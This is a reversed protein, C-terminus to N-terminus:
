MTKISTPLNYLAGKNTERPYVGIKRLARGIERVDFKNLQPHCDKFKSVTMEKFEQDSFELLIDRIELESKIPKEFKGNREALQKREDDNLRFGQPNGKAREDIQRYLQLANFKILASIDMKEPIHVTWFRRNGTEDVLYHDDNCTGIFSTRRSLRDDFRAYPQRYKDRPTTIFAKLADVDSKFTRSIEGLEGIWCSGARRLTDKDSFNLHLGDAFWEDKLAMIRAFTTKGIGQEGQLVLLGDAGYKGYENRAMSLNQWLWKIILIKSLKDDDKIRMINFLEPLRDTKDWTGGEILELVPNYANQTIIYEFYDSVDSKLCKKYILKLNDYMNLPLNNDIHEIDYENAGIIDAERTIRNYKATVGIQKLYEIFVPITFIIDTQGPPQGREDATPPKKAKPRGPPTYFKGGCSEIAKNITSTRYDNRDWKDRYLASQRFYRDIENFDGQCWFALMNCLAQDASSHDNNNYSLDGRDYLACFKAANRSKRAKELIDTAIQYSESKATQEQRTIKEKFNDRLMYNEIFTLVKETREEIDLQNVKKGTFTFYKNTLGSFYCETENNPNNVYYKSDLKEDKTPIKSIDCKFIIHYGNGSPSRETYTNMLNIITQARQEFGPDDKKNDLDIGCLGDSFVFGIGSYNGSVSEAVNYDTWTNPKDTAAKRGSKPNYPVKTQRDNITEYKWCVWM